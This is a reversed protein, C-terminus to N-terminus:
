DGVRVWTSEGANGIECPPFFDGAVMQVSRGDTQCRYTGSVECAEGTRGTLRKGRLVFRRRRGPRARRKRWWLISGTISLLGPTLGGLSYLIKIPLAGYQGFHVSRVVQELRASWPARAIDVVEKVAGTAPDFSVSSSMMGYMWWEGAVNGAVRVPKGEANTLFVARPQFGPLTRASAAALSDLSIRPIAVAGGPPPAATVLKKYVPSIMYFGTFSMILQFIFALVGIRKHLDSAIVPAGAKWRIRATFTRLISGRYVLIGTLASAFFFLALLGVLAEGWPRFFFSRHLALVRRTFSHDVNRAGLFEGTFPNAQVWWQSGKMNMTVTYAVAPREPVMRIGSITAEPYAHQVSTLITNLSAREPGPACAIEPYLMADIDDAFILTAGAMGIVLLFAGGILGLWSHIRLLRKPM